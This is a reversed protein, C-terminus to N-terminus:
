FGIDDDVIEEDDEVKSSTGTDWESAPVSPRAVSNASSALSEIDPFKKVLLDYVYEATVAELTLNVGSKGNSSWPKSSVVGVLSDGVKLNDKTGKPFGFGLDLIQDATQQTKVQLKIWTGSGDKKAIPTRKIATVIYKM